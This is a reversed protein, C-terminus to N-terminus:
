DVQGREHVVARRVLDVGAVVGQGPVGFDDLATDPVTRPKALHHLPPDFPVSRRAPDDLQDGTHIARSRIWRLALRPSSAPRSGLWYTHGTTPYPAIAEYWYARQLVLATPSSMATLSRPRTRRHHQPRPKRHAPHRGQDRLGRRTRTRPRASRQHRPARRTPSPHHGWWAPSRTSSSRSAAPAAPPAPSRTPVWSPSSRRSTTRALIAASSM